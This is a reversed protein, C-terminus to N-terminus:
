QSFGSITSQDHVGWTFIDTILYFQTFKSVASEPLEIDDGIACDKPV